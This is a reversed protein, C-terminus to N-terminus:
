EKTTEAIAFATIRWAMPGDELRAKEAADWYIDDMDDLANLIPVLHADVAAEAKKTDTKPDTVIFVFRACVQGLALPQGQVEQDVRTYEIYVAPTDAKVLGELYEHWKWSAPLIPTLRDKVATRITALDTFM